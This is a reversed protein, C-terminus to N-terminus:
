STVPFVFTETTFARDLTTTDPLVASSLSAPIAVSFFIL